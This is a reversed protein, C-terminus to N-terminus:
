IILQQFCVPCPLSVEVPLSVHHRFKENVSLLQVHFLICEQTVVGAIYTPEIIPSWEIKTNPHAYNQICFTPVMLHFTSYNPDGVNVIGNKGDSHWGFNGLLPNSASGVAVRYDRKRLREFKRVKGSPVNKKVGTNVFDVLLNMVYNVVVLWKEEAVSAKQSFYLYVDSKDGFQLWTPNTDVHDLSAVRIKRDKKHSARQDTMYACSADHDVVYYALFRPSIFQHFAVVTGGVEKSFEGLKLDHGDVHRPPSQDYMKQFRAEVEPYSTGVDVGALQDLYQDPGLLDRIYNPFDSCGKLYLAQYDIPPPVASAVTKWALGSKATFFRAKPNSKRLVLSYELSMRIRHQVEELSPVDAVTFQPYRTSLGLISNGWNTPISLKSLYVVDQNDAFDHRALHALVFHVSALAGKLADQRLEQRDANSVRKFRVPPNVASTHLEMLFQSSPLVAFKNLEETSVHMDDRGYCLMSRFCAGAADNQFYSVLLHDLRGQSDLTFEHACALTLTEELVLYCDHQSDPM